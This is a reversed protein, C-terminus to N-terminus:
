GCKSATYGIKHGSKRLLAESYRGMDTISYFTRASYPLVWRGVKQLHAGGGRLGHGHQGADLFCCLLHVVKLAGGEVCVCVCVCVGTDSAAQQESSCITTPSWEPTTVQKLIFFPSGVTLM